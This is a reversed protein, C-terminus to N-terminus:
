ARVIDVVDGAADGVYAHWADTLDHDHDFDRDRDRDRSAEKADASGSPTVM